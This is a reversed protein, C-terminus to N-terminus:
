IERSKKRNSVEGNENIIVGIVPSPTKPPTPPTPYKPRKTGLLKGGRPAYLTLETGPKVTGKVDNEEVIKRGAASLIYRTALDGKISFAVWKSTLTGVGPGKAERHSRSISCNQFSCQQAGEIDEASITLPLDTAADQVFQVTPYQENLLKRLNSRLGNISFIKNPNVHDFGYTGTPQGGDLLIDCPTCGTSVKKNKSM